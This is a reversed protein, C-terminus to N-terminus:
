FSGYIEAVSIHCLNIKGIIENYSLNLYITYIYRSAGACTPPFKVSFNVSWSTGGVLVL